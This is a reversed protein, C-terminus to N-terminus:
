MTRGRVAFFFFFGCVTLEAVLRGHWKNEGAKGAPVMTHLISLVLTLQSALQSRPNQLFFFTCKLLLTLSPSAPSFYDTM